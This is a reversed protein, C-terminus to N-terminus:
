QGVFFSMPISFNVDVNRGKVVGPSWTKATKVVRVAEAKLERDATGVAHVNSIKGNALVTFNVQLTGGAKMRAANPPYRVQMGIFRLFAYQDNNFVPKVETTTYHYTNGKGDTSEGSLMIGDDYVEKFTLTDSTIIKGTWEGIYRGEKVQGKAKIYKSDEDYLIVLGNGNSVLDKGTSDKLAVIDLIPSSFKQNKAEISHLKGNPYYTYVSDVVNGQAYKKLQKLNGNEYFSKFEGVYMPERAWKSYGVSKKKQNPYFDEVIYLQLGNEEPRIKRIFDASDVKNTYFGNNKIYYVNEEQASVNLFQCLGVLLFLTIKKM